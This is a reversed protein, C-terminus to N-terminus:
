VSAPVRTDVKRHKNLGQTKTREITPHLSYRAPIHLSLNDQSRNYHKVLKITNMSKAITSYAGEQMM